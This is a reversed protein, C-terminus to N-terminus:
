GLGAALARPARRGPGALGRHQAAHGHLPAPPLLHPGGSFGHVLRVHDGPRHLDAPVLEGAVPVDLQALNGHLLIAKQHGGLLDQLATVLVGDADHGRQPDRKGAGELRHLRHRVGQVLQLLVGPQVDRNVHVPGAASEQRREARRLEFPIEPNRPDLGDVRGAVLEAERGQAAPPHDPALLLVEGLVQDEVDIIEAAVHGGERQVERAGAALGDGLVVIEQTEATVAVAADVGGAVLCGLVKGLLDPLHPGELDNEAAFHIRADRGQGPLHFLTEIGVPVRQVVQGVPQARAAPLHRGVGQRGVGLVDDDLPDQDAVADAAVQGTQEDM